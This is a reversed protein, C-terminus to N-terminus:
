IRGQTSSLVSLFNFFSARPLPGAKVMSRCAADTECCDGIEELLFFHSINISRILTIQNTAARDYSTIQTLLYLSLQFM